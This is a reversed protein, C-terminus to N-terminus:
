RYEKFDDLASDFDEALVYKGKASGFTPHKKGKQGASYKELLYGAFDLVEIKLSDPLLKVKIIIQQETM